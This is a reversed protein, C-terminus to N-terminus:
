QCRSVPTLTGHRSWQGTTLWYWALCLVTLSESECCCILYQDYWCLILVHLWCMLATLGSVSDSCLSSSHSGSLTNNCRIYFCWHSLLLMLLSLRPWHGPPRLLPRLVMIIRRSVECRRSRPEEQAQTRSRALSAGPYWGLYASRRVAVQRDHHWATNCGDQWSWISGSIQDPVNHHHHQHHHHHHHHRHNHHDHHHHHHHHSVAVQRDRHWATNCRWSRISGSIMAIEMESLSQSFKKFVLFWTPAHHSIAINNIPIM